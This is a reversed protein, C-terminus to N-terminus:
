MPLMPATPTTSCTMPWTSASISRWQPWSRSCSGRRTSPVTAHRSSVASASRSSRPPSSPSDPPSSSPGCAASAHGRGLEDLYGRGAPVSREAYEFFPTDAEDWGSARRVVVRLGEGNPTARGWLNVYRREDYGVGPQPRIHSFTLEVEQGDAPRLDQDLPGIEVEAADVSETFDVAVNVPYGDPGVYALVAHPYSRARTLADAVDLVGM